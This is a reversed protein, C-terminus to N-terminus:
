RVNGGTGTLELFREELTKSDRSLEYLPIGHEAALTGIREM